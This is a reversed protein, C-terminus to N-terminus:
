RNEGAALPLCPVAPLGAQTKQPRLVRRGPVLCPAAFIRSSNKRQDCLAVSWSDATPSVLKSQAGDEKNLSGAAIRDQTQRLATLQLSFSGKAGRGM